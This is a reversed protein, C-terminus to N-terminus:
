EQVEPLPGPTRGKSRFYFYFPIGVAVLMLGFASNIIAPKGAAVAENYTVIDNYVTLVLYVLAFVVFIAPIFPYGPVRYPREAAPAKRRLVFVGFAGAAYFMWSVFILTDTLTDFTGSMLLVVSWVCQVVLSSAPTHFTRHANGLFRPFVNRRAMSFYVRASALITGNTTGFTSILVAAAIWRGGGSFFREAVDAAVLSSKAMEDIPLVYCYALNILLYVTIIIAMGMILARPINRQPNKEEGAIYTVNNWGDYAWFAGQLAAAIALAIGLAGLKSDTSSSASPASITADSGSPPANTGAAVMTASPTTVNETSGIGPLVFALVVLAMMAIVKSVTFINQVIGGFKVGLYNVLTLLIILGAAIGKVEMSAFPNIDGIFPLHISFAAATEWFGPQPDRVLMAVHAAVTQVADAVLPPSILRTMYEAFVYAISAISGTQIVAFVSWGYIYASFRGYMRDFYVFQGGTEPIMGAVEANTLAGFLTIVGALAWVGLLLWPMGVGHGILDGAMVGPKRFIGSGIVAGVVIMTTTFLGLSPLLGASLRRQESGHDPTDPQSRKM